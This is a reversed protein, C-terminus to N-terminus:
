EHWAARGVIGVPPLPYRQGHATVFDRQDYRAGSFGIMKWAAMARNGGYLPDSFFGEITNQLLLDFFPQAKIDGDLQATGADLEHLIDDQQPASLRAFTRGHKGTAYRDIEGIAARYVQAPAHMQYGQSKEGAMFPGQQYLHDGQGYPGALQRDIFIPVGAEVAGAGTQDKPILREVAATIFAAEDATFFQYHDGGAVPTPADIDGGPTHVWAWAGRSLAFLSSTATAALLFLRRSFTPPM